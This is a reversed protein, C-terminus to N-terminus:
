QGAGNLSAPIGACWYSKYPAVAVAVAIPHEGVLVDDKTLPAKNDMKLRKM